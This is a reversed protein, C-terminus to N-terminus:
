LLTKLCKKSVVVCCVVNPKFKQGLSHMRPTDLFNICICMIVHWSKLQRLGLSTVLWALHWIITDYDLPNPVSSYLTQNYLPQQRLLIGGLFLAITGSLVQKAPLLKKTKTETSDIMPQSYSAASTDLIFEHKKMLLLDHISMAM